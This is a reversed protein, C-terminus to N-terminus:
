RLRLKLVIVPGNRASLPFRWLIEELREDGVSTLFAGAMFVLLMGSNSRPLILLIVLPSSVTTRELRKNLGPFRATIDCHNAFKVPSVPLSLRTKHRTSVLVTNVTFLM